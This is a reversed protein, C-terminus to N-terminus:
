IWHGVQAWGLLGARGLSGLRYNGRSREPYAVHGSLELRSSGGPVERARWTDWFGLGLAVRRIDGSSEVHGPLRTGLSFVEPHMGLTGRTGLAWVLLWGKPVGESHAVHGSAWVSLGRRFEKPTHWTDWLGCQFVGEFSRRLTGRTGFGVGLSGRLVGESRAVHGSLWM